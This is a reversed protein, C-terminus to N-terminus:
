NSINYLFTFQLRVQDGTFAAPLPPFPNSASIGAVAARDFADTGSPLAIVLKPVSGDRAIAFQIQVRGKRGLRASEPIVARWNRRVASLVQVLYPKFDVGHPDSLLELSSSNRTPSPMSGPLQFGGGIGGSGPLDYEGVVVGGGGKQAAASAAEAVTSGPATIRPPALGGPRSVPAPLGPTEFALKPKEEPQIQPSPPAPATPLNSPQPAPQAAAIQTGSAAPQPPQPPAPPKAPVPKPLEAKPATQAPAPQPAPGSSRMPPIAAPVRLARRALLSEVTFERATSGRREAETLERPPAVLTITSRPGSQAPRPQFASQPLLILGGVAAVHLLLSAIWAGRRREQVACELLLLPQGERTAPPRATRM